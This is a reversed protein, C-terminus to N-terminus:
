PETSDMQVVLTLGAVNAIYDVGARRRFKEGGLGVAGIIELRMM